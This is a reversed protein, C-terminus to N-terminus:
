GLQYNWIMFSLSYKVFPKTSAIIDIGYLKIYLM